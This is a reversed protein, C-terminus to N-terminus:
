DVGLHQGIGRDVRVLFRQLPHVGGALLGLLLVALDRPGPRRDLCASKAKAWALSRAAGAAAGADRASKMRMSPTDFINPVKGATESTSRPMSFPSIKPSRPPEPQPLVVSSLISAPKSS